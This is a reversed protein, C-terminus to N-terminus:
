RQIWYKVSLTMRIFMLSNEVKMINDTKILEKEHELLAFRERIGATLM